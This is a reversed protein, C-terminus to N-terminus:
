RADGDGKEWHTADCPLPTSPDLSGNFLIVRAEVRRRDPDTPDVPHLQLFDDPRQTSPTWDFHGSDTSRERAIPTWVGTVAHRLQLEAWVRGGEHRFVLPFFLEHFGTPPREVEFDLEIGYTAVGYLPLFDGYAQDHDITYVCGDEVTLDTLTGSKHITGPIVRVARLGTIGGPCGVPPPPPPAIQAGTPVPQFMALGVWLAPGFLTTKRM